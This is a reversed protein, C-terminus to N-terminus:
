KLLLDSWSFKAKEFIDVSSPIEMGDDGDDNFATRKGMKEM